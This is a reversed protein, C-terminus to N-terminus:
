SLLFCVTICKSVWGSFTVMSVQSSCCKKMQSFTQQMREFTPPESSPWKHNTTPPESFFRNHHTAVPIDPLCHWLLHESHGGEANICAELTKRCQDTAYYVVSRQFEAWIVVLRRLGWCTWILLRTGGTAHGLHLYGFLLLYVAISCYMLQQKNEESSVYIIQLKHIISNFFSKEPNGLTFNSLRYRVNSTSLDTRRDRRIREPNLMGFIIFDTFKQCNNFSYFPPRKAADRHLGVQRRAAVTITETRM